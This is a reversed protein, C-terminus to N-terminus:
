LTNELLQSLEDVTKVIRIAGAQRLQEIHRATIHSGGTFGIVRMGAQLASRIGTPSDEIVVCDDVPIGFKTAIYLNLDPAPKPRKVMESSFLRSRCLDLM